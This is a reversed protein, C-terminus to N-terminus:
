LRPGYYAICAGSALTFASVNTEFVSGAPFTIDTFTPVPCKAASSATMATVVTAETFLFKTFAAGLAPLGGVAANATHADTDAASIAGYGGSSERALKVFDGDTPTVKSEKLVRL